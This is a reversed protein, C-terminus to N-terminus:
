ADSQSFHHPSQNDNINLWHYAQSKLSTELRLKIIKLGTLVTDLETKDWEVLKMIILLTKNYM